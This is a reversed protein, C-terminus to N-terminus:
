CARELETKRAQLQARLVEQGPKPPMSAIKAFRERNQAEWYQRTEETRQLVLQYETEVEARHHEIYDMVDAM